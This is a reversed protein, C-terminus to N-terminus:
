LSQRVILRAPNTIKEKRGSLIQEAACIGMQRFDTSIM